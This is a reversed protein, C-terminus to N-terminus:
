LWGQRRYFSEAREALTEALRATDSDLGGTAEGVVQMGGGIAASTAMNSAAAGVGIPLVMGPARDGEASAEAEGLRRLGMDTAQYVQVLVRLQSRGAGFGITMRALRSGENITVFHGRVVIANLPPNETDSAQRVRIGRKGIEDVLRSSLSAAVAQAKPDGAGPTGYATGFTDVLAEEPSTAFDYVVMVPPRPLTRDAVERRVSDVGASACALGSLLALCAFPLRHLPNM